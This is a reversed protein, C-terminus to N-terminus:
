WFEHDSFRYGDVNRVGYSFNDKNERCQEDNQMNEVLRIFDDYQIIKDYENIIVFETSDVTYKKLWDKVQAFTNWVVPPEDWTENQVQFCFLWGFSSKGIHYPSHTTPRNRAAYYNTGM